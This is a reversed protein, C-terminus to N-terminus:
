DAPEPDGAPRARGSHAAHHRARGITGGRQLAPARERAVAREVATGAGRARLREDDEQVKRCPHRPLPPRAASHGRAAGRAPPAAAGGREPPLVPGRPFKGRGDRGRPQPSYGIDGACGHQLEPDLGGAAREEGATRAAAEGAAHGAHGRDRGPVAHRPGRDPVAGQSRPHRRHLFRQRPRVARVRAAARSNRRLQHGRVSPRAAPKGPTHRARAAGQRHRVRRLHLRQRRERGGPAGQRARRGNGSQPHHDGQAM